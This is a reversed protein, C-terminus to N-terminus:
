PTKSRREQLRRVDKAKYEDVQESFQRKYEAALPFREFLETETLPILPQYRNNTGRGDNIILILGVDRLLAIHRKITSLNKKLLKALSYQSPYAYGEEKRFYQVIIQYLFLTETTIGYPQMNMYHFLDSPTRIFNVQDRTEQDYKDYVPQEGAVATKAAMQAVINRKDARAQQQAKKQAETLAM